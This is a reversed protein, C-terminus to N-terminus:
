QGYTSRRRNLEALAEPEPEFGIVSCLGSALMAKYSADGDIPNAEIDLM